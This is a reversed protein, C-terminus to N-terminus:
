GAATTKVMVATVAKMKQSSVPNFKHNDCDDRKDSESNNDRGLLKFTTM